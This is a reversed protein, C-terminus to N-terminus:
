VADMDAKVGIGGDESFLHLLDEMASPDVNPMPAFDRAWAVKAEFSDSTLRDDHNAVLLPFHVQQQVAATMAAGGYALPFLTVGTRKSAHIVTPRVQKVALQAAYRRHIAVARSELTLVQSQHLNRAHALM